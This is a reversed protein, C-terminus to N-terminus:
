KPKRAAKKKAAKAAAALETEIKKADVNLRAALSHLRDSRKKESGYIELDGAVALSRLLHWLDSETGHKKLVADTDYEKVIGRYKDKRESVPWGMVKFLRVKGDHHLRDFMAECALRLDKEIDPKLITADIRRLLEARYALEAQRKKDAARQMATYSENESRAGKPLLDKVASVQVIEIVEGSQPVRLLAPEAKKGLIERYTRHMPDNYCREELKVYGGGISHESKAIKKADAGDIVKQGKAQAQELQKTGWATRKASFCTPDTCVGASAKEVDSFLERQLATNKPCSQCSGAAPVLKMDGVPFPAEKLQLMYQHQIHQSAERFSMPEYGEDTVEELAKKQLEDVPIRAILLAISASVKGDRFAKRAEPCLALLKMRAYVTAKSKGVKDAIQEATYGLRQLGEYGEAEALEHLDERQLNEILQVELVQEDTLARLNVPVQELGAKQAALYRREGAVLEYFYDGCNVRPRAVLPALLGVSKISEALEDIAEANFYKRREIQASTQSLAIRALAIMQLETQM